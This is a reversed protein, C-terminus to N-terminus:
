DSLVVLVRDSTLTADYRTLPRPAPGSLNVGDLDFESKHCKCKLRNAKRSYRVKCKKHTCVPLFARVTDKTDRVILLPKGKLKLMVSGGVEHLPVLKALPLAVKKRAWAWGPALLALAGALFGRRGLM